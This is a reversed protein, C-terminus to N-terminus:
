LLITNSTFEAGNESIIECPSSSVNSSATSKRRMAGESISKEALAAPCKRIFNCM